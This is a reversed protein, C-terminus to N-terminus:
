TATADAGEDALRQIESASVFSRGRIRTLKINGAKVLEYFLSHGIGGLIQRAESIPYLLRNPLSSTTTVPEPTVGDGQAEDLPSGGNHGIQVTTM